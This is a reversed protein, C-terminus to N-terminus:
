RFFMSEGFLFLSVLSSDFYGFNQRSYHHYDNSHALLCTYDSPFSYIVLTNQLKPLFSIFPLGHNLKKRQLNTLKFSEETFNAM